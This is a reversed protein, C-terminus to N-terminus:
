FPLPHSGCHSSCARPHKNCPSQLPDCSYAFCSKMLISNTSNMGSIGWLQQYKMLYLFYSLASPIQPLPLPNPPIPLLLVEWADAARVWGYCLGLGARGWLPMWTGIKLMVCCPFLVPM